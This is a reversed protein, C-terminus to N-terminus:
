TQLNNLFCPYALPYFCICGHADWLHVMSAVALTLARVVMVAVVCKQPSVLAHQVTWSVCRLQHVRCHHVTRM